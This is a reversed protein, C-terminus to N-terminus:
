MLPLIQDLIKGNTVLIQKPFIGENGKFDTVTAGAEKAILAGAAVDYLNLEQEWFADVQGDAVMCIDMAASGFRRQGTTREAIRCFRQLNNEKLYSRLCAFGTAVMADGLVTESSVTTPEGNKFAGKGLEACYYDNVTPVYVAGFVIQNDIELAVSISWFYQGKAFSHTGDIPDVIWRSSQNATQGSEEGWFGYEPYEKTLVKQLYAEVAVDAATVFDRPKKKNISLNKLDKFHSLAIAGAERVIKELQASSISM